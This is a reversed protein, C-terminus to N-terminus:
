GVGLMPLLGSKITVTAQNETFADGYAVTLFVTSVVQSSAAEIDLTSISVDVTANADAHEFGFEAAQLDSWEWPAATAPNDAWRNDNYNGFTTNNINLTTAYYRVGGIKVYPKLQTSTGAGRRARITLIVDEIITSQPNPGATDASDYDTWTFLVSQQQGAGSSSIYDADDNDNIATYASGATGGTQTWVGDDTGDASPEPFDFDLQELRGPNYAAPINIQTGGELTDLVAATLATGDPRTPYGLIDIDYDANMAMNLPAYDVGGDRVMIHQHSNDFNDILGTNVATTLRTRTFLSFGRITDPYTARTTFTFTERKITGISGGLNYDTDGNSPMEDANLYHTASGKHTYESYTGAAIPVRDATEVECTQTNLWPILGGSGIDSYLFYIDDFWVFQVPDTTENKDTYSLEFNSFATLTADLQSEVVGEDIRVLASGLGSGRWDRDYIFELQYWTNVLLVTPGAAASGVQLKKATTIKLQTTGIVAIVQDVAPAADFRFFFHLCGKNFISTPALTPTVKVDTQKVSHDGKISAVGSHFTVTDRTAGSGVNSWYDTLATRKSGTIFSYRAM